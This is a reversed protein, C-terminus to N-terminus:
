EKIISNQRSSFSLLGGLIIIIVDRPNYIGTITLTTFFFCVGILGIFVSVFQYDFYIFRYIKFLFYLLLVLGIIGTKYFIYIYGNHTESIYRLGESDLPAKFKLDILSGFGTGVIYNVPNKDMLALARKAEYGRWHDWLEKHNDRNIKTKFMEAPAIKVKYLFAELGKGNRDIKISFLYVYLLGVVTLLGLFIKVNRANVITYGYITLVGLVIVVIMTRSFYFFCSLILTCFIIYNFRKNRFMKDGTFKKYFCFFLLSFSELFNDKGFVNRLKNMTEITLKSNFLVLFIHFFATFFGTLIIIKIFTKLEIKRFFLYGLVLGLIPKLFHTIDKILHILKFDKGFFGLFGIGFILFLPIVLSIIKISIKFENLMLMIFLVILQIISNIRFSPLYLQSFVVLLFLAIIIQKIKM